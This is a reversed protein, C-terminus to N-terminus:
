VFLGQFKSVYNKTENCMKQQNLIQESGNLIDDHTDPNNSTTSPHQINDDSHHKTRRSPRSNSSAEDM